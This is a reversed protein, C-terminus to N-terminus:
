RAQFILSKGYGAPLNIFVDQKKELIRRIAEKQHHNFQKIQFKKAAIEFGEDLAAM